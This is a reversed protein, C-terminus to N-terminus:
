RLLKFLKCNAENRWNKSWLVQFECINCLFCKHMMDKIKTFMFLLCQIFMKYKADDLKTPDMSSPWLILLTLTLFDLFLFHISPFRKDASVFSSCLRSCRCVLPPSFSCFELLILLSNDVIWVHQVLYGLRHRSNVNKSCGTRFILVTLVSDGQVRWKIQM